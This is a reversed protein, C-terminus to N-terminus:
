AVGDTCRVLRARISASRAAVSGFRRWRSAAMGAGLTDSAFPGTVGGAGEEGTNGADLAAGTVGGAGEDGTTAGSAPVLCDLREAAVTAPRRLGDAAAPRRLGDAAAPRRPELTGAIAAPGRTSRAV